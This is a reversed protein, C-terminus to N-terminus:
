TEQKGALENGSTWLMDRGVWLLVWPERCLGAETEAERHGFCGVAGGLAVVVLMQNERSGRLLNERLFAQFSSLAMLALKWTLPLASKRTLLLPECPDCVLGLGGVTFPLGAEFM